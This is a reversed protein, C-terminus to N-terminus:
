KSIASAYSSERIESASLGFIAMLTKPSGLLWDLHDTPPSQFVVFTATRSSICDTMGEWGYTELATKWCHPSKIAQFVQGRASPRSAETRSEIWHSMIQSGSLAM